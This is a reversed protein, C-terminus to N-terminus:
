PQKIINEKFWRDTEDLPYLVKGKNNFKTCFPLLKYKRREKFWSVSFGYRKSVQKMTLYKINDIEIM